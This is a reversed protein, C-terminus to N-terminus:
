GFSPRMAFRFISVAISALCGVLFGAGWLGVGGVLGSILVMVLGATEPALIGAHVLVMTALPFSVAWSLLLGQIESRTFGRDKGAIWEVPLERCFLGLGVVELFVLPALVWIGLGQLTALLGWLLDARFALIGGGMLFLSTLASLAFFRFSPQNM